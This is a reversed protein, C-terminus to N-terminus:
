RGNKIDERNLYQQLIIVAAITDIINKRKKSGSVNSENLINHASVTTLREDILEVEINAAQELEKAFDIAQQASKGQTGNMNLPKGVVIKKIDYEKIIQLMENILLKKNNHSITKLPSAILNLDDSVAIGTRRQGYDVGLVKM